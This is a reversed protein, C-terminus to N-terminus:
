NEFWINKENKQLTMIDGTPEVIDGILSIGKNYWKQFFLAEGSLQTNYWICSQLIEFNNRPTKSKCFKSWGEFVSKWFKNEFAIKKSIAWEGGLKYVRDLSGYM